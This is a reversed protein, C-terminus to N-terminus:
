TCIGYIISEALSTSSPKMAITKQQNTPQKRKSSFCHIKESIPKSIYTDDVPQKSQLLLLALCTKSCVKTVQPIKCLEKERIVLGLDEKSSKLCTM